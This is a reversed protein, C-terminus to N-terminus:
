LGMETNCAEQRTIAQNQLEESLSMQTFGGYPDELDLLWLGFGENESLLLMDACPGPSNGKNDQLLVLNTGTKGVVRYFPTGLEGDDEFTNKYVREWNNTNTDYRYIGNFIEKKIIDFSETAFYVIDEEEGQVVQAILQESGDGETPKGQTYNIIRSAQDAQAFENLGVGLVINEPTPTNTTETTQSVEEDNSPAEAPEQGSVLGFVVVLLLIGVIILNRKHQKPMPTQDSM